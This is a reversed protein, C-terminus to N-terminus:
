YLYLKSYLIYYIFCKGIGGHTVYLRYRSSDYSTFYKQTLTTCIELATTNLPCALLVSPQFFNDLMNVISATRHHKGDIKYIRIASLENGNSDSGNSIMTSPTAPVNASVSVQDSSETTILPAIVAWSEPAVWSKPPENIPNSDFGQSPTSTTMLFPVSATSEITLKGPVNLELLEMKSKLDDEPSIAVSVATRHSGPSGPRTLTDFNNLASSDPFYAMSSTNTSVATPRQLSEMVNPSPVYSLPRRGSREEFFKSFETAM